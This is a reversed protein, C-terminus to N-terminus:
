VRTSEQPYTGKHWAGLAVAEQPGSRVISIQQPFSGLVNSRPSPDRGRTSVLPPLSLGTTFNWRGTSITPHLLSSM